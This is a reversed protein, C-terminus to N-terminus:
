MYKSLCIAVFRGKFKTLFKNSWLRKSVKQKKKKTLNLREQSNQPKFLNLCVTFNKTLSMEQNEFPKQKNKINNNLQLRNTTTLEDYILRRYTTDHTITNATSHTSCANLYVFQKTHKSFNSYVSFTMSNPCSKYMPVVGTAPSLKRVCM